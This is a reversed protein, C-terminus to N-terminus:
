VTKMKVIGGGPPIPRPLMPGAAAVTSVVGGGPPIPRPLMPGEAFTNVSALTVMAFLLPRLKLLTSIMLFVGKWLRLKYGFLVESHSEFDGCFYCLTFEKTIRM